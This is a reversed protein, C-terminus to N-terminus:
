LLSAGLLAIEEQPMIKVVLKDLAHKYPYRKRLAQEMTKRFFPYTNAIGGGFVICGPDYSYM